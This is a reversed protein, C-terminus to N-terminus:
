ASPRPAINHNVSFLNGPDYTAKLQQLRRLNRGYASEVPVQPAEEDRGYFNLYVGGNGHPTMRAFADRVWAVMDASDASAGDWMGDLSFMYPARRESFATAEPDVRAIAGGMHFLNVLTLPAPREAALAAYDAIAADTLEDAYLSKWYAHLAGRPFFADFDSQIKPFPQIASIDVLPEGLERLPQMAAMGEEAEGAYVGAIIAVARDHIVEPMEPVAPFTLTIIVSTVEDPAQEVYDRWRPVIEPLDEVAYLAAAQAVMHPLPHAEFTFDTVVGFNGGGGRLAWLLDADGEASATRVSGDACVVQAEVLSDCSLGYKRRLWGYGGGLTLGAVGTDSIVGGPVALGLPSADRDVDGWLAGGQVTVRRRSPDVHVGRMPSLDLLVGGDVVSHGAISHGGGRVALRLGRERAFALGDVVDQVGTCSIVVAPVDDHM